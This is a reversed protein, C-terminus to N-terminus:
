RKVRGVDVRRPYREGDVHVWALVMTAYHSHGGMGDEVAYRLQVSRLYTGRAPGTELELRVPTM